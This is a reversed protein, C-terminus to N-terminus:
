KLMAFSNFSASIGPPPISFNFPNGTRNLLHEMIFLILSICQKLFSVSNIEQRFLPILIIPLNSLIIHCVAMGCDNFWFYPFCNLKFFFASFFEHFCVADFCKRRVDSFIWKSTFNDTSFTPFCESSLFPSKTWPFVSTNPLTIGSVSFFTDHSASVPM